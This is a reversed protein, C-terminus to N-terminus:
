RPAEPNFRDACAAETRRAAEAPGCWLALHQFRRVFRRLARDPHRPRGTLMAGFYGAALALSGVGWPREGVRYLASALLFVPSAGLEWQGRGHRARGRLISRDSAGMPRLHEFRLDPEDFSAVKWGRMRARYCDIGDWMRRRELGGIQEFCRRRYFKAAGVSVHPGIREDIARGTAPDRYWARGSASGLRPDANMREILREFYRPPLVLDADLKGIWAYTELSEGELGVDFADVVGPGVRRRGRDARRVVRLTPQKAAWAELLEPTRDSSGDDVIVWRAPRFTQAFVSTLTRELHDAEDRCPTILLYPSM